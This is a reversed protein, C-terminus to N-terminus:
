NDESEQPEVMKVGCNPCYNYHNRHWERVDIGCDCNSCWEYAGLGSPMVGLNECHERHGIWRGIKPEQPTVSTLFYDRLYRSFVEPNYTGYGIIYDNGEKYKISFYPKGKYKPYTCLDEPPYEVVIEQFERSICDVGLDNKTTSGTIKDTDAIHEEIIDMVKKYMGTNVVCAGDCGRDNAMSNTCMACRIGEDLGETHIAVLDNKTTPEQELTKIADRMKEGDKVSLYEISVTGLDYSIDTLFTKAEEKTMKM